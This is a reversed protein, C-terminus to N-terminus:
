PRDGYSEALENYTTEICHLIQVPTVATPHAYLQFAPELQMRVDVNYGYLKGHLHRLRAGLQEILHGDRKAAHKIWLPGYNKEYDARLRQEDEPSQGEIAFRMVGDSDRRLPLVRVYHKSTRLFRATNEVCRRHIIKALAAGSPERYRFVKHPVARM